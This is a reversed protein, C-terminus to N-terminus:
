ATPGRRSVQYWALDSLRPPKVMTSMPSATSGDGRCVASASRRRRLARLLTGTGYGIVCGWPALHRLVQSVSAIELTGAGLKGLPRRTWSFDGPTVWACPPVFARSVAQVTTGM